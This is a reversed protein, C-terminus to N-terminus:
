EGGKKFHNPCTDKMLQTPYDLTEWYSCKNDYSRDFANVVLWCFLGILVVAILLSIIKKM